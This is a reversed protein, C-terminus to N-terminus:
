IPCVRMPQRSQKNGASAKNGHRHRERRELWEIIEEDVCHVTSALHTDTPKAGGGCFIVEGDDPDTMGSMVVDSGGAAAPRRGRVHRMGPEHRQVSEVPSINMLSNWATGSLGPM